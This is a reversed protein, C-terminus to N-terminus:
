LSLQSRLPQLGLDQLQRRRAPHRRAFRLEARLAHQQPAGPYNSGSSTATPFPIVNGFTLAPNFFLGGTNGGSGTSFNGTMNNGRIGTVTTISSSDFQYTNFSLQAFAPTSVAGVASAVLLGRLSTRVQEKM